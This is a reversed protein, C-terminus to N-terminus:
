LVLTHLLQTLDADAYVCIMLFADPDSPTFLLFDEIDHSIYSSALMGYEESIIYMRDDDTGGTALLLQFEDITLNDAGQEYLVFYGPIPQGEEKATITLQGGNNDVSVAFITEDKDYYEILPYIGYALYHDVIERIRAEEFAGGNARLAKTPVRIVVVGNKYYALGDFAGIDWFASTVGVKRELEAQTIAEKIGGGRLRADLVRVRDVSTNERVYVDALLLAEPHVYKVKQWEAESLAHRLCHTNTRTLLDYTSKEPLLYLYIQKNLLRETPVEEYVTASGFPQRLTFTHGTTPNLDLHVFQKNEEDYYGKYELTHEECVYSVYLEDKFSVDRQLRIKGSYRDVDQYALETEEYYSYSAYVPSPNERFFVVTGNAFDLYYELPSILSGGRYLMAQPSVTWNAHKSHFTYRDRSTLEEKVIRESRYSRKTIRFNDKRYSAKVIGHDHVADNDAPAPTYDSCTKGTELKLNWFDITNGDTEGKKGAYLHLEGGGNPATFVATFRGDKALACHVFTEGALGSLGLTIVRSSGFLFDATGQLAYSEGPILGDYLLEYHNQDEATGFETDTLTLQQKGVLLNEGAHPSIRFDVRGNNYDIRYGATLLVDNGDGFEDWYIDPLTQKNWWSNTSQFLTRDANPRLQEKVVTVEDLLLPTRSVRITNQNVYQALEAEVQRQGTQPWFAQRDYEPLNYEHSGPLFTDYFATRGVASVGILDSASLATKRFSGNAVRLYWREREDTTAPYLVSIARNNQLQLAYHRSTVKISRFNASVRLQVTCHLDDAFLENWNLMWTGSPSYHYRDLATDYLEFNLYPRKEPEAVALEFYVNDKQRWETGANLAPILTALQGLVKLGESPRVTFATTKQSGYAREYKGTLVDQKYVFSRVAIAATVETDAQLIDEDNYNLYSLDLSQGKPTTAYAYLADTGNGDPTMRVFGDTEITLADFYLNTTVASGHAGLRLYLETATPLTFDLAIQKWNHTGTVEPTQVFRNGDAYYLGIGGGQASQARVQCRLTYSGAALTGLNQQWFGQSDTSIVQIAATGEQYVDGTHNFLVSAGSFIQTDWGPIASLTDDAFSILGDVNRKEFNANEITVAGEDAIAVAYTGATNKTRFTRPLYPAMAESVSRALQKRAVIRNGDDNDPGNVYAISGDPQFYEKAFLNDRHHVHERFYPTALHRNATLSLILNVLFKMTLSDEYQVNLMLGFNALILRGNYGSKKRVVAPQGSTYKLLVDWDALSDQGKWEFAPAVKRTMDAFADLVYCNDALEGLDPGKDFAATINQSASFVVDHLFTNSDSGDAAAIVPNLADAGSGCNDLILHGGAALFSQFMQGYLTFDQQGYGSLILIDYDLYHEEPMNIDALWYSYSSPTNDGHIHHPNHFTLYDPMDPNNQVIQKLAGEVSFGANSAPKLYILGIAVTAPNSENVVTTLDAEIRYAFTHPPRAIADIDALDLTPNPAYVRYGEGSTGAVAYTKATAKANEDLEQLEALSVKQFVPELNLIETRSVYKGDEYAQYHIEYGTEASSFSTLVVIRYTFAQDGAKVLKIKYADGDPLQTKGDQTLTIKGGEYVFQGAEEVAFSEFNREEGTKSGGLYPRVRAYRADFLGKSSTQYFLPKADKVSYEDTLILDDRSFTRQGAETELSMDANAFVTFDRQQGTTLKNEAIAGSHDTLALNKTPAPADAQVYALNAAGKPLHTGIRLSYGNATDSHPLTGATPNNQPLTM